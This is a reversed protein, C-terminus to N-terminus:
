EDAGHISRLIRKFYKVSKAEGKPYKTDTQSDIRKSTVQQSLLDGILELYKTAIANTRQREVGIVV